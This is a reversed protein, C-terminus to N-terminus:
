RHVQATSGSSGPLTEEMKIPFYQIGGVLYWRKQYNRRCVTIAKSSSKLIPACMLRAGLYACGVPLVKCIVGRSMVSLDAATVLCSFCLCCRPYRRALYTPLHKTATVLLSFCLCCRPYRRALYKSQYKAASALFSFCLCCSLAPLPSRSIHISAKRSNRAFLFLSLLAPLPSCSIHTSQSSLNSSM